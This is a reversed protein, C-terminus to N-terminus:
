RRPGHGAFAPEILEAEARMHSAIHARIAERLRIYEPETGYERRLAQLNVLGRELAGHLRGAAEGVLALTPYIDEQVDPQGLVTDIHMAVEGQGVGRLYAATRALLVRSAAMEDFLIQGEKALRLRVLRLLHGVTAAASQEVTGNLAPRVVNDLTVEITQLIDEATPLIM